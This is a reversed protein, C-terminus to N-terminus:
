NVVLPPGVLEMGYAHLFAAGSDGSSYTGPKLRRDREAFFAEMQGAPAFSILLRGPAGGAFAWAHPIGRPGLVSDGPKLRFRDAGVEVIYEGELAYFLEDQAHHLHRNPGGPKHNSQELVFLAGQSDATLVKYTTASLGISRTKAERDAGAAVRVTKGNPETASAVRGLAAAPITALALQILSRRQLKQM